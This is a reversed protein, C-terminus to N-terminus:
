HTRSISFRFLVMRLPLSSLLYLYNGRVRVKREERPTDYVSVATPHVPDAIDAIWLGGHYDAMYAYHGSVDIGSPQDPNDFGGVFSPSIPNSVDLM